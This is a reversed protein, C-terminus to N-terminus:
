RNAIYKKVFDQRFRSVDAESGLEYRFGENKKKKALEEELLKNYDEANSACTTLVEGEYHFYIWNFEDIEIYIDLKDEAKEGDDLPAGFKYVIKAPIKKNISKGGLGIVGIEADSYLAKYRTSYNFDINSLLLTKPLQEALKIDSYIAADDVQQIFKDTEKEGKKGFDLLEAVSQRLEEDKYDIESNTTTLFKYGDVIKDFAEKPLVNVDFALVLNSSFEREKLNEKWWGAFELNATNKPFDDPFQFYGQSTITNEVDNFSVTSGKRAKGKLKEEPGIRFEKTETDVTLKGSGSLMVPDIDEKKPQLFNSYFVRYEPAYLMGAVLVNGEDDVAREPIDILVSDPNVDVGAYPFSSNALFENQTEIKVNGDFSLYQKSADLKVEGHFFILETLYFNKQEPIEGSAVTTTDANVQINAFKIYQELGEVGLYDYKGSGKYDNGGFIEVNAEYIKHYRKDQDAEILANELKKILGTEGVQAISLEEKEPTIIADAVYIYPVGVIDIQRTAPDYFSTKATFKLSDQAPDTSLFFNERMYSSLGELNLNGSERDYFGKVMSTAYQHLPFLALNEDKVELGEFFSTHTKMDYEVKVEAAIFHPLGPIQEDHLEFTALGAKFDSEGFVLSDSSIVIQGVTITGSGVVGKPTIRLRGEFTAEGEFMALPEGKSDLLIADEKTLWKYDANKASVEPFYAGDRYGKPMNFEQVEGMVSDFHFVFTDSKAVTALFDLQGNGHLGYRDLILENTFKGKGEYVEMGDPAEALDRKFGLSGDEMVELTETFEPFIESSYFSGDFRLGAPNLEMLSDLLFPDVSFYLKEKVYIANQISDDAWYVYSSKYSDFVPYAPAPKKGSKNKPYDLHVKGTVGEFVTNSLAKCLKIFAADEATYQTPDKLHIEALRKHRTPKDLVFQFKDVSDCLISNSKYDFKLQEHDSGYFNVLGAAMTGGFTLDRDKGVRVEADLPIIRIHQSDSLSFREVGRMMIEKTKVSMEAHNGTNVKSILQIADYDKKERASMTWDYLKKQPYIEKSEKDYKIFGSTELNPMARRFAEADNMLKYKALISEIFIPENPHEISYRYIAGIPNMKLINKFQRFRALNFFDFSEIAAAKNEQDIFATFIMNEEDLKWVISEFYMYYAHYSSSYPQRGYYGKRSKKLRVERDEVSYILDMGPHHISDEDLYITAEIQPAILNELDLVFENGQLQMVTKNNLQIQLKAKITALVSDPTSPVVEEEVDEDVYYEDYSDDYYEEESGEYSDEYYEDYEEEESYDYDDEYYEGWEDGWDYEEEEQYEEVGFDYEDYFTEWEDEVVEESYELEAEEEQPKEPIEIVYRPSVYPVVDQYASGIKRIGKLSFGGEYRVNPILREIVVGGDYSKFFPYAAKNINRYGINKDVFKGKLSRDILGDYHFTVSDAEVVGYNFNLKYVDFDCYVKNADLGMKGWTVKGGKGLFSLSILNFDGSTRYITTSDKDSVYKLDTNKFRLVPAAYSNEGDSVEFFFLRPTQQSSAWHFKRRKCTYGKPIYRALNKLYTMVRNPELNLVAEQTVDFFEDPPLLVETDGRKIASFAQAYFVFGKELYKKSVMINTLAIFRERETDMVTESKWQGVLISAIAKGEDGSAELKAGFAAIFETPDTPLFDSQAYAKGGL